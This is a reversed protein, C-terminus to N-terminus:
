LILHYFTCIKIDQESILDSDTTEYMKEATEATACFSKQFKYKFIFYGLICSYPSLLSYVPRSPVELDSFGAEAVLLLWM